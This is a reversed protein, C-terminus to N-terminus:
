LEGSNEVGPMGKVQEALQQVYDIMNTGKALDYQAKTIQEVPFLPTDLETLHNLLPLALHRDLHPM